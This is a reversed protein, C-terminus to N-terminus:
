EFVNLLEININLDTFKKSKYKINNIFIDIHFADKVEKVDDTNKATFNFIIKFQNEVSIINNITFAEVVVYKLDYKNCIESIQKNIAVKINKYSITENHIGFVKLHEILVVNKLNIFIFYLTNEHMSVILEYNM